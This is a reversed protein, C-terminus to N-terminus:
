NKSYLLILREPKQATEPRGMPPLNDQFSSFRKLCLPHKFGIAYRSLEAFASSSKGM